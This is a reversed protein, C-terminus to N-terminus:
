GRTGAAVALLFRVLPDVLEARPTAFGAYVWAQVVQSVGGVVAQVTVRREAESQPGLGQAEVLALLLTGFRATRELYAADVRPGVGLVEFWVVRALCPDDEVCAFFAAMGAQAQREVDEGVADVADLVARELRDLCDHYVALLLDELQAFEEYFYRDAVRAERCLRRLTTARYGETGFCRRGADLLQRRRRQARDHASEGGYTRGGTV